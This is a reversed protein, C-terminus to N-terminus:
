EYNNYTRASIVGEYTKFVAEELRIERSSLSVPLVSLCHANATCADLSNGEFRTRSNVLQTVQAVKIIERSRTIGKKRMSSLVYKLLNGYLYDLITTQYM